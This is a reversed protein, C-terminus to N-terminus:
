TQKHWWNTWLRFSSVIEPDSLQLAMTFAPLDIREFTMVLGLFITISQLLTIQLTFGQVMKRIKTAKLYYEIGYSFLRDYLTLLMRSCQAIWIRCVPILSCYVNGSLLSSKTWWLGRQRLMNGGKIMSLSCRAPWLHNSMVLSRQHETPSTGLYLGPIAHTQIMRYTIQVHRQSPVLLLQKSWPFLICHPSSLHSVRQASDLTGSVLSDWKYIPNQLTNYIKTGDLGDWEYLFEM